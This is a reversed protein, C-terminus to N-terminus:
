ANLPQGPALLELLIGPEQQHQATLITDLHEPCISLIPKKAPHHGAVKVRNFSRLHVKASVPIDHTILFWRLEFLGSLCASLPVGEDTEVSFYTRTKPNLGHLKRLQREAKTYEEAHQKVRSAFRKFELISQM